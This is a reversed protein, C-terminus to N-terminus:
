LIVNKKQKLKAGNPEWFRKNSGAKNLPLSWFLLWIVNYARVNFMKYGLVTIM